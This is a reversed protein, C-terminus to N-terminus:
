SRVFSSPKLAPGLRGNYLSPVSLGRFTKQIEGCREREELRPNSAIEPARAAVKPCSAVTAVARWISPTESWAPGRQTRLWSCSTGMRRTVQGSSMMRVSTGGVHGSGPHWCPRLSCPHGGRVRPDRNDAPAHLGSGLPRYAPCLSVGPSSGQVLLSWPRVITQPKQLSGAM